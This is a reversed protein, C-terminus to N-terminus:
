LNVTHTLYLTDSTAFFLNFLSYAYMFTGKTEASRRQNVSCVCVETEYKKSHECYEVCSHVMM